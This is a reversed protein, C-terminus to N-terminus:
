APPMHRLGHSAILFASAIFSNYSVHL